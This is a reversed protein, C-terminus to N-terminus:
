RYLLSFCVPSVYFPTMLIVLAVVQMAGVRFINNQAGFSLLYATPNSATWRSGPAVPLAADAQSTYARAAAHPQFLRMVELRFVVSAYSEPGHFLRDLQEWRFGVRLIM